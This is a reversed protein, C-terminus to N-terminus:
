YKILPKDLIIKVISKLKKKGLFSKLNELKKKENWLGAYHQAYETAYKQVIYENIKQQNPTSERRSLSDNLVRYEFGIEQLYYFQKKTFIFKLWLDWDENGHIPIKDDYMGAQILVAKRILSCTDLYNAALFKYPDIIGPKWTYEMDGFCQADTYVVAINSDKEMLTFAKEFVAAVLINDADLPLIYKGSSATIGTNRANAPGANQQNIIISGKAKLAALKDITFGDTSGDNVIIHEVPVKAALARVSQINEDLYKGHNFCATVVSIKFDPM